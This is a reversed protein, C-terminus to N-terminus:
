FLMNEIYCKVAGRTEFGRRCGPVREMRRKVWLYFELVVTPLVKLIRPARPHDSPSASCYIDRDSSISNLRAKRSM